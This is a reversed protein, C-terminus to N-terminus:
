QLGSEDEGQNNNTTPTVMFTTGNDPITELKALLLVIM